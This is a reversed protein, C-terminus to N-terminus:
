PPPQKAVQGTVSRIAIVYSEDSGEISATQRGGSESISNSLAPDFVIERNDTVIGVLPKARASTLAVSSTASAPSSPSETFDRRQLEILTGPTLSDFGFVTCTAVSLMRALIHREFREVAVKLLTHIINEGALPSRATIFEDVLTAAQRLDL